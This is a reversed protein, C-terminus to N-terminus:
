KRTALQFMGKFKHIYLEIEERETHVLKKIAIPEYNKPMPLMSGTIVRNSLMVSYM